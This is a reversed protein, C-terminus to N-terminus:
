MTERMAQVLRVIVDWDKAPLSITEDGIFLRLMLDDKGLGIEVRFGEKSGISAMVPQKRLGHPASAVPTDMVAGSEM